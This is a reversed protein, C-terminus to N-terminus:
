RRAVIIGHFSLLAARSEDLRELPGPLPRLALLRHSQGPAPSSQLLEDFRHPPATPNLPRSLLASLALGPALGDADALAIPRYLGESLVFPRLAEQVLVFPEQPVELALLWSGSVGEDLREAVGGLPLHLAEDGVLAGHDQMPQALVFDYPPLALPRPRRHPLGRRADVLLRAGGQSWCEGVVPAAQSPM